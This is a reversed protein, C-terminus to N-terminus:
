RASAARYAAELREGITQWSFHQAVFARGASALRRRLASDARLRLIQNVFEPGTEACLYHVDNKLGLGEVALGTAIMPRGMALADLVKLRTGGGIRIPCLYLEAQEIHPRVDEVFGTVEAGLRTAELRLSEPPQGGVITLKWPGESRPLRPWIERLLFQAAELNPHWGMSGAFVLSGPVPDLKGTPSFYEIDVGNDVVATKADPAVDRLRIGDLDSVVLNMRVLPAHFQELRRIKAADRRCYLRALLSPDRTARSATLQSEVNHHTLVIRAGGIHSVFQMLFITDVHVLDYEGSEWRSRVARAFRPSQFWCVGYPDASLYAFGAMLHRRWRTGESPIPHIEIDRLFPRLAERAEAVAAETPLIAGQNLTLLDVEHRGAAQRLLHHSRQLAGGRPPYPVFHSLWLIKM